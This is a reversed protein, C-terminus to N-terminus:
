LKKERTAQRNVMQWPYLSLVRKTTSDTAGVLQKM